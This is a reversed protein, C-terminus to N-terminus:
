RRLRLLDSGGGPFYDTKWDLVPPKIDPLIFRGDVGFRSCIHSEIRDALQETTGSLGGESSTNAIFKFSGNDKEGGWENVSESLRDLYEPYNELIWLEYKRGREVIRKKLDENDATVIIHVDPYPLDGKGTIAYFVNRYLNWENDNMWGMKNHTKAYIFDMSLSPDILSVKSKDINKLQDVKSILFNMQSRFSYEPPNEYFEELFPNAPYNEEVPTIGWRKGLESSLTTKGSALCGLFGIVLPAKKIEEKSTNGEKERMDFNRFPLEKANQM